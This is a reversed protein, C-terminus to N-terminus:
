RQPNYTGNFWPSWHLLHAKLTASWNCWGRANMMLKAEKMNQLIWSLSPLDLIRIRADGGTRYRICWKAPPTISLPWHGSHMLWSETFNHFDHLPFFLFIFLSPLASWASPFNHHRFEMILVKKHCTRLPWVWIQSLMSRFPNCLMLHLYILM